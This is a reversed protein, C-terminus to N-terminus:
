WVKIGKADAEAIAAWDAEISNPAPRRGQPSMNSRAGTPQTRQQAVRAAGARVQGPRAKNARAEADRGYLLHFAEERGIVFGIRRQQARYDEVKERYAERTPSRACSADFRTQDALDQQNFQLQQLAQGMQAQGRQMLRQYAESPQLLELSQYFEQEQRAAAQPDVQQQRAAAGAQYGRLEAVERELAAAKAEAEQRARRQARITESGGGSRRPPPPEDAVEDEQGEEPEDPEPEVDDALGEGGADDAQGEVEDETADQPGLVEEEPVYLPDAVEGRTRAM